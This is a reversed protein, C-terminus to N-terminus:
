QHNDLWEDYADSDTICSEEMEGWTDIFEPLLFPFESNDALDYLKKFDVGDPIDPGDVVYRNGEGDVLLFGIFQKEKM